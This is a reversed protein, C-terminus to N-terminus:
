SESKLGGNVSGVGVRSEYMTKAFVAAEDEQSFTIKGSM